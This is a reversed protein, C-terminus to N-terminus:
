WGGAANRRTQSADAWLTTGAPASIRTVRRPDRHGYLPNLVFSQPGIFERIKQGTNEDVRMVSRIEGPQMNDTRRLNKEVCQRMLESFKPVTEDPLESFNVSAMQESRPIYKRGIRSLRRLYDVSAEDARQAPCSRDLMQFTADWREQASTM